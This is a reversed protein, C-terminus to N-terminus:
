AKHAVYFTFTGQPHAVSQAYPRILRETLALNWREPVLIWRGTLAHPLLTPAGFYHGWEMVHLAEPPFYHWWRDLQFGAQELRAQWVEPTDAHHVRSIRRFWETYADALSFLGIKRL